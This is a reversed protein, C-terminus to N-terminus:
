LELRMCRGWRAARLKRQEGILLVDGAGFGAAVQLSSAAHSHLQVTPEAGGESLRVLAHSM